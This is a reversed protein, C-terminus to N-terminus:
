NSQRHKDTAAESPKVADSNVRLYTQGAIASEPLFSWEPLAHFPESLM